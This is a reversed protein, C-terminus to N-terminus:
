NIAGQGSATELASFIFQAITYSFLIIAGGIVAGKLLSKAETIKEENGGATMWQFGAYLIIAVTVIGLLGLFATILTIATDVPTRAEAGLGTETRVSRAFGDSVIEGLARQASCTWLFLIGLGARM